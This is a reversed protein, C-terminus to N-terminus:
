EMEDMDMYSDADAPAKIDPLTTINQFTCTSTESYTDGDWTYTLIETFRTVYGEANYEYTAVQSVNSFESADIDLGELGSMISELAGNESSTVVLTKVGNESEGFIVSAISATAEEENFINFLEEFLSSVSEDKTKYKMELGPMKMLCYVVGDIYTTEVLSGDEMTESMFGKKADAYNLKVDAEMVSTEDAIRISEVLKAEFGKLTNMKNCVYAYAANADMGDLPTTTVTPTTTEANPATTTPNTTTASITQTDAVTTDTTEGCAVLAFVLVVLVVFLILLKNKM